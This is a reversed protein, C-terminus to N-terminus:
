KATELERTEKAAPAAANKRAEADQVLDKFPRREMGMQERIFAETSRVLNRSPDIAYVSYCLELHRFDKNETPVYSRSDLRGVFQIPDDKKYQSLEQAADGYATIPVFANQEGRKGNWYRLTVKCADLKQGNKLEIQTLEPDAALKGRMPQFIAGPKDFPRRQVAMFEELKQCITKSEDLATITFSLVKHPKGKSPTYNDYTLNGAFEIEEGKEHSLLSEAAKEWAVARVYTKSSNEDKQYAITVDAVKLEKGSKPNQVTRLEPATVLEGRMATLM